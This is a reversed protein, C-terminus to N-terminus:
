TRDNLMGKIEEIDSYMFAQMAFIFGGIVMVESANSLAGIVTLVLIIWGSLIYFIEKINM